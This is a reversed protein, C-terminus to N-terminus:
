RVSRPRVGPLSRSQRGTGLPRRARASTAAAGELVPTQGRFRGWFRDACTDNSAFPSGPEHSSDSVRAGCHEVPAAGDERHATPRDLAGVAGATLVGLEDVRDEAVGPEHHRWRLRRGEERSARGPAARRAALDMDEFVQHRKRLGRRAGAGADLELRLALERKGPVLRRAENV